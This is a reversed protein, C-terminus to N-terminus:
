SKDRYRRDATFATEKAAQIRIEIEAHPDYTALFDEDAPEPLDFLKPALHRPTAPKQNVLREADRIRETQLKAWQELGIEQRYKRQSTSEEEIRYDILNKSFYSVPLLRTGFFGLPELLPQLNPLSDVLDGTEDHLWWQFEASRNLVLRLFDAQAKTVGLVIVPVDDLDLDRAIQLRLDGDIVRLDADLLLPAFVGLEAVCNSVKRKNEPHLHKFRNASTIATTPLPGQYLYQAWGHSPASAGPATTTGDRDNAVVTLRDSTVRVVADDIGIAELSRRILAEPPLVSTALRGTVRAQGSADRTLSLQGCAAPDIDLLARWWRDAPIEM